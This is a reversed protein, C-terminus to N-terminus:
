FQIRSNCHVTYVLQRRDTGTMLFMQSSKWSSKKEMYQATPRHFENKMMSYLTNSTERSIRQDVREVSSIKASKMEMAKQTSAERSVYWLSYRRSRTVNGAAGPDWPLTQISRYPAPTHTATNSGPPSVSLSKIARTKRTTREQAKSSTRKRIKPGNTWRLLRLIVCISGVVEVYWDGCM